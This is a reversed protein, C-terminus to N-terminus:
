RAALQPILEVFLRELRASADDMIKVVDVHRLPEDSLGAAPNTPVSIGLVRAGAAEAAIAELVTSMGVLDAGLTRLMRVEAPTEYTPGRLGAYVGENLNPDIKRALARLDADYLASLDRFANGTLPNQGTLNLHDSILCPQGIEIDPRIAGSANTLVVTKCGAAVADQVPRVITAADHGEYLHIRGAFILTPVGSVDGVYLTGEHGGVTPQPLGAIASLPIPDADVLRRAIPGAGSGLVIAVELDNRGTAEAITRTM